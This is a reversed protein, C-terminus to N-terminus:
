LLLSQMPLSVFCNMMQIGEEEEGQDRKGGRQLRSTSYPIILLSFSYLFLFCLFLLFAFSSFDVLKLFTKADANMKAMATVCLLIETVSIGDAAQSLPSLAVVSSCILCCSHLHGSVHQSKIHLTNIQWQTRLLCKLRNLVLSM